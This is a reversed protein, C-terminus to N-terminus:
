PHGDRQGEKQLVEDQYGAPFQCQDVTVGGRRRFFEEWRFAKSTATVQSFAVQSSAIRFAAVAIQTAAVPSYAIQSAAVHFVAAVETSLETTTLQTITQNPLITQTPLIIDTAVKTGLKPEPREQPYFKDLEAILQEQPRRQYKPKMPSCTSRILNDVITLYNHPATVM